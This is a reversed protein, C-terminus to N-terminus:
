IGEKKRREVLYREKIYLLWQWGLVIGVIGILVVVWVPLHLDMAGVILFADFLSILTFGVDDIFDLRWGTYRYLHKHRAVFGHYVTYFALMSLAVYTIQNALALSSWDWAVVGVLTAAMAVLNWLYTIFLWDYYWRRIYSVIYLGAFFSITATITHLIILFTHVVSINM